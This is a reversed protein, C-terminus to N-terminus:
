RKKRNTRPGYLYDDLHDCLDPPFPDNEFVERDAFFPDTSRDTKVPTSLAQKVSSRIFEGFSQGAQKARRQAKRKMDAPMMFTTRTM